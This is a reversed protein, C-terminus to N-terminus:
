SLKIPEAVLSSTFPDLHEQKQQEKLIQVPNRLSYIIYVGKM